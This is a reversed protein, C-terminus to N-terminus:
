VGQGGQDDAKRAPAAYWQDRPVVKPQSPDGRYSPSMIQVGYENFTDQINRHLESYMKAMAQPQHTYVNLEYSVYFDDLSTQLVFPAPDRLLGPTHEAAMLLLAEVQRWPADYGITVKTHLILGKDRALTNYNIVHSNV